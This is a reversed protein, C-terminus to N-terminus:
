WLAPYLKGTYGTGDGSDAFGAPHKRRRESVEATRGDIGPPEGSGDHVARSDDAQEVGTFSRESSQQLAVGGERDPGTAERGTGSVRVSRGYRIREHFATARHHSDDEYRM